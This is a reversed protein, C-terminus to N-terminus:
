QLTRTLETLNVKIGDFTALMIRGSTAGLDVAIYHSTEM